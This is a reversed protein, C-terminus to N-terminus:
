DDLFSNSFSYLPGGFPRAEWAGTPTTGGLSGYPDHRTGVRTALLGQRRRVMTNQGERAHEDVM